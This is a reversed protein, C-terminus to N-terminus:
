VQSNYTNMSINAVANQPTAQTENGASSALIIAGLKARNSVNPKNQNTTEPDGNDFTTGPTGAEWDNENTQYVWDSANPCTGHIASNCVLFEGLLPTETASGTLYSKVQLYRKDITLAKEVSGVDPPDTALFGGAWGPDTWNAAPNTDNFDTGRAKFQITGTMDPDTRNQQPGQIYTIAGPARTGQIGNWNYSVKYSSDYVAYLNNQPIDAQAFTPGSYQLQVNAGGAYERYKVNLPYVGENKAVAGSAHLAGNFWDENHINAGDFTIIMGDDHASYFNWAGNAPIYVYGNWGVSFYNNGLGFGPNGNGWNFSIKNDVRNGRYTGQGSGATPFFHWDLASKYWV